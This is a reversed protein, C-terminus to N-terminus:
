GKATVWIFSQIDIMDRPKLDRLETMLIRALELLCSYTLWNPFPKYNLAFGRREAAEKTVEPKLFIYRDPRALFPVITAISWRATPTKPQRMNQLTEILRIFRVEDPGKGSLFEYASVAFAKAAEPTQVEDHLAVKEFPSILTVPTIVRTARSVIERFNGADLLEKFTARDLLQNWAVHAEWKYGREDKWYASSPDTTFGTPYRRLFKEISGRSHPVDPAEGWGRARHRSSRALPDKQIEALELRDALVKRSPNEKQDKFFVTVRNGDVAFVKGLGLTPHRVLQDKQYRLVDVRVARGSAPIARGGDQRAADYPTGTCRCNDAFGRDTESV